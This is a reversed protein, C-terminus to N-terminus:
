LTLAFVICSYLKSDALLTKFEDISGPIDTLGMLILATTLMGVCVALIIMAIQSRLRKVNAVLRTRSTIRNINSGYKLAMQTNGGTETVMMLARGSLAITGSYAMNIRKELPTNEPLLAECDKMVPTSDGTILSEDCTFSTTILLRGDAPIIDGAELKVIDGPVLKEADIVRNEQNRLVRVSASSLKQLNVITADALRERHTSIAAWVVASIFMTGSYILGSILKTKDAANVISADSVAAAFLGISIIILILSVPATLNGIFLRLKSKKKRETVTNKGYDELRVGAKIDSLGRRPQSNLEKAVIEKKESHWIM